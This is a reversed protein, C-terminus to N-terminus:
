KYAGYFRYKVLHLLANILLACVILILGLALALALNGKQTEMAIATTMVRTQNEINGGVIMVAGIEAIARGFAALIVTVLGLRSEHLLVRFCQRPQYGLMLLQEKLRQWNKDLYPLALAIILPTILTTQAVIMASPTYLLGFIGLPGNQSLMLYVLLGVVVPPFAMLSDIVIHLLRKGRFEFVAMALTLPLAIIAAFFVSSLSVRFSLFVITLLQSDGRTILQVAELSAATLTSM